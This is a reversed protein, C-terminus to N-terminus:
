LVVVSGDNVDPVGVVNAVELLAGTDRRAYAIRALHLKTYDATLNFKSGGRVYPTKFCAEIRDGTPSIKAKFLAHKIGSNEPRQTDWYCYSVDGELRRGDDSLAWYLPVRKRGLVTVGRERGAGPHARDGPISTDGSRIPPRAHGM